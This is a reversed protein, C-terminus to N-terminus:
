LDQPPFVALNLTHKVVKLMLCSLTLVKFKFNIEGINAHVGAENNTQTLTNLFPLLPKWLSDEM